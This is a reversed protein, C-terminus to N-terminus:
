MIRAISRIMILGIVEKSYTLVDQVPTHYKIRQMMLNDHNEDNLHLIEAEYRRGKWQGM